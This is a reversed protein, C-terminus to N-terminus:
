KGTNSFADQRIDSSSTHSTSDFQWRAGCLQAGLGQVLPKQQLRQQIAKFTSSSRQIGPWARCSDRAAAAAMAAPLLEFLTVLLLALEAAAAPRMLLLFSSASLTVSCGAM